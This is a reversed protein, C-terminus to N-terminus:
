ILAAHQKIGARRWQLHAAHTEEIVGAIADSSLEDYQRMKKGSAPDISQLPM